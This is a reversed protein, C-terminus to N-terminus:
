TEPPTPLALWFRAESEGHWSLGHTKGHDFLQYNGEGDSLLLLCKLPWTDKGIPQWEM